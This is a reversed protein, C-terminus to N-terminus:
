LFSSFIANHSTFSLAIDIAEYPGRTVDCLCVRVRVCVCVCLCVCVHEHCYYHM